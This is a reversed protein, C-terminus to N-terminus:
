LLAFPSFPSPFLLSPSISHNPNSLFTILAVNVIIFVFINYTEKSMLQAFVHRKELKETFANLAAFHHPEGKMEFAPNEYSVNKQKAYFGRTVGKM